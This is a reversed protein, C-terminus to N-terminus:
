EATSTDVRNRRSGELFAAINEYIERICRERAEVAAWAIHPTMLFRPNELIRVLPSEPSMPERSIVDVAAGGIINNEIAYALDEEVLIDGRGVNILIADDKMMLFQQEGFLHFTAPTLPSHISIIDCTRLMEDFELRKYTDSRNQNSSSWYFVNCGLASAVDAIRKGIAGMGIIGFNKGSIEHFQWTLHRFSTDDVYRGKKTYDQFRFINEKLSLLMTFTHQVVSETSYGKINCVAIGHESCYSVDVNDTGTASLCILRATSDQLTFSNLKAKNTIIIDKGAIRSAVDKEDTFPYIEMAGFENFISVDIDDGVSNRDLFVLEM